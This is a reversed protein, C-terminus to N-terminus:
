SQAQFFLRFLIDRRIKQDFKGRLFEHEQFSDEGHNPFLLKPEGKITLMDEELEMAYGGQFELKGRRDRDCSGCNRIGRLSLIRKDDDALVAPDFPFGDGKKRGYPTGDMASTDSFVPVCRVSKRLSGGWSGWLILHMICIIVDTQEESWM